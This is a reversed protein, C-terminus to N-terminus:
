RISKNKSENTKIGHVSIVQYFGKPCSKFTGDIHWQFCSSLFHLCHVITFIMIRNDKQKNDYKLISENNLDLINPDIEDPDNSVLHNTEEDENIGQEEFRKKRKLLSDKFTSWKRWYLSVEDHYYTAQLKILLDNYLVKISNLSNTKDLYSQCLKNYEIDISM